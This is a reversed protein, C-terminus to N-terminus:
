TGAIRVQESIEGDKLCVIEDVYKLYQIQNTVFLRTQTLLFIIMIMYMYLYMGPIYMYIYVVYETSTCISWAMFLTGYTYM